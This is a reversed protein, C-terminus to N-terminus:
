EGLVNTFDILYWNEARFHTVRADHVGAPLLDLPPEVKLWPDQRSFLKGLFTHRKRESMGEDAIVIKATPKAVRMMEGLAAKRDDLGNFAGFILAADFEHDSFPLHAADGEILVASIGERELRRACMRLMARTVDVGAITGGSSVREAIFGLNAGTGVGVELARQGPELALREVAKRREAEDSFRYVFGALATSLDYLRASRSYVERQRRASDYPM